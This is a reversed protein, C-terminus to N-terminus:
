QVLEDYIREVVTNIVTDSEEPYMKKLDKKLHDFVLFYLAGEDMNAKKIKHNEYFREM